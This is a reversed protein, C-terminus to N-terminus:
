LLGREGKEEGRVREDREGREGGGGRVHKGRWMSHWINEM